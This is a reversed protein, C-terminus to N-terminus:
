PQAAPGMAELRNFAAVQQNYAAVVAHMDAMINSYRTIRRQRLAETDRGTGRATKDMTDLCNIFGRADDLYREVRRKAILMDEIDATDGSPWLEVAAPAICRALAPSAGALAVVLTLLLTLRSM